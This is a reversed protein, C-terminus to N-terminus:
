CIISTTMSTLFTIALILNEDGFISKICIRTKKRRKRREEFFFFLTHTKAEDSSHKAKDILILSCKTKNSGNNM